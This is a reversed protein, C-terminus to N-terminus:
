SAIVSSVPFPDRKSLVLVRKTHSLYGRVYGRFILNALICEVEDLDIPMGLWRFTDSVQILSIQHRELIVHIRKFLNRYCVTKCKELLLYTGQRIFIHQFQLLSDHFTRLNGTRIAESVAVFEVLGYKQLLAASPLRGRYLKVPVLYRLIKRKNRMGAESKAHCNRLACELSTEAVAYQDEYLSLRGSYYRYTVMPASRLSGHVHLGKSEVPKVLNKCLRLTNLRFYISFLENVIVLVGVKKSGESSYVPLSAADNENDPEPLAKRDNFTRSFSEQLLTVANQLKPQDNSKTSCDAQMAIRKTNRCVAHLAPLLTNGPSSPLVQNFAAHLSAQHEYCKIAYGAEAAAWANIFSTLVGTWDLGDIQLSQESAFQPEHPQQSAAVNPLSKFLEALAFPASSPVAAKFAKKLAKHDVM